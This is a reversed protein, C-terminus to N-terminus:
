QRAVEAATSVHEIEGKVTREVFTDLDVTTIAYPHDPYTVTIDVWEGDETVTIDEVRIIELSPDDSRGDQWLSGVEIPEPLPDYAAIRGADRYYRTDVFEGDRVFELLYATDYDFHDPTPDRVEVVRAPLKRGIVWDAEVWEGEDPHYSM